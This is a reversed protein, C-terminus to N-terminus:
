DHSTSGEDAGFTGDESQQRDQNSDPGDPNSDPGDPNSDPLGFLEPCAAVLRELFGPHAEIARQLGRSEGFLGAIEELRQPSRDLLHRFAQLSREVQGLHAYQVGGEGRVTVFAPEAPVANRPVSVVLAQDVAALALASVRDTPTLVSGVLPDDRGVWRHEVEPPAQVDVVVKGDPVVPNILGRLRDLPTFRWDEERGTPAGFTNPDRSYVRKTLKQEAPVDAGHAHPTQQVAM